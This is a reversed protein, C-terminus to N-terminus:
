GVGGATQTEHRMEENETRCVTLQLQPVDVFWVAQAGKLTVDVLLVKNTQSGVSVVNGTTLFSRM